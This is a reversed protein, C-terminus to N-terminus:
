HSMQRFRKVCFDLRLMWLRVCEPIHRPQAVAAARRSRSGYGRGSHGLPQHQSARAETGFCDRSALNLWATLGAAALASKTFGRGPLSLYHTVSGQRAMGTAAIRKSYTSNHGHAWAPPAWKSTDRRGCHLAPGELAQLARGGERALLVQLDVVARVRSLAWVLAVNAELSERLLRCKVNM